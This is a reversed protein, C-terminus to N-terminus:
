APAPAPCTTGLPLLRAIAAVDRIDIVGNGDIDATPLFGPQGNSTGIALEVASLDACTVKGDGNVDGRVGSSPFVVTTPVTSVIDVNGASRSLYFSLKGHAVLWSQSATDWTSMPHNTANPDITLTVQQQQGPNLFVKKYGVLRKPPEGVAQVFGLYVQPVDAGFVNGTNQVNFTVTYPKTGDNVAPTVQFNSYAFTTYSLGHGFWFQPTIGQNDYWRYGIKLGESYTATPVGIIQGNGNPNLAQITVGPWQATTSAPVDAANVPYTISLHGSPNTLGFLLEAVVNGDEEGPYWAELIAPVQNIWPMLVADGDMLVLVTKPNAAAVAAILADQNNTLSLNPRDSGESTVVGAMVIAVDSSAALAAAAANNSGNNAAVLLTVTASSGLQTLVNQLGQQPTVEYLPSVTSSGGGGVFANSFPTQGILAITKIKSADLPLLGNANKLLVSSALSISRAILGDGTADIPTLTIPRDFDGMRFMQTYRRTLATQIDSMAITGAALATNLNAATFFVGSSMELDLGAKLSPATSYTAGFDSQVYGQFGWLNRLVGNLLQANQCNFQGSTQGIEPDQVSNYACMVAAVGGDKISMEFPLMNIEHLTRDDIIENVKQRNTEQDNAVYHKTMGIIGHAQMAQIYPVATAGDLFPDEGMYEFNRGGQPIRAMDMGPGEIVHIGLDIAERGVLDGYATAQAPDFSAALGLSTVIATAKAVTTCDGQGVGVPGNSVRFTPIALAPIGPVHRGANTGCSPVEPIAGPQGHMQEEMQDLTMASVLLAARQAPTLSTNMWPLTQASTVAAALCAVSTVLAASWGTRFSWHWWRKTGMFM